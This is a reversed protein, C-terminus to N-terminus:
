SFKRKISELLDTTAPKRKGAYEAFHGMSIRGARTLNSFIESYESGDVLHLDRSEVFLEVLLGEITVFHEEALQTTVKPRV